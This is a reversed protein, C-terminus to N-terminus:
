NNKIWNRWGAPNEIISVLDEANGKMEGIGRFAILENVKARYVSVGKEVKVKEWHIEKGSLCIHAAAFFLVVM